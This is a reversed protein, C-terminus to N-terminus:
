SNAQQLLQQQHIQQQQKILFYIGGIGLLVVVIVIAVFPGVGQPEPKTVEQEPISSVSMRTTYRM